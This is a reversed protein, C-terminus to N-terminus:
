PPSRRAPSHCPEMKASGAGVFPLAAPDGRVAKVLEAFCADKVVYASAGAKLCCEVVAADDHMSLVIIRTHQDDARIQRVLSLGALADGAFALDLMVVDPRNQQYLAYGSALNSACVISRIGADELICRCGQIVFPHDDIILVSTVPIIQVRWDLGGIDVVPRSWTSPIIEL